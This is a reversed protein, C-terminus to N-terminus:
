KKWCPTSKRVFSCWSESSHLYAFLYLFGGCGDSARSALNFADLSLGIFLFCINSCKKYNNGTQKFVGNCWQLTCLVVHIFRNLQSITSLCM